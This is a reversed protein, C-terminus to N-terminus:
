QLKWPTERKGPVPRPTAAAILRYCRMCRGAQRAAEAADLAQEVERFSGERGAPPVQPVPARQSKCLAFDEDGDGLLGLRGIIAHMRERPEFGAGGGTLYADIAAAAREGQAMASILTLPGTACDGGAFVGPRSTMLGPGAAVNGRRDPAVGGCAAVAAPDTKQGVAAIVTGCPLEFESGEVARVGRRGRADREALRVKALTLGCVRGGETELSVPNTLFHFIVGEDRAAAIEEPDAPAEKETRRYILHVAGGAVRRATRCCDMAVNGCGVVAVDGEIRLASGAEDAKQAAALFDIGNLYGRAAADEGPLGLYSGRACGFALFVASYGRAFLDDLTFDGGLRQGFRYRGGLSEIVGAEDAVVGKPLRYPPIGRLAMGGAREDKDYVDVPYGRLLLHYACNVGAPGAGVVAVRGKTPDPAPSAGKFLAGVGAADAVYRKVDKIMVAADLRRRRCAKECPRVCVRGCVGVLPYHRLLAGCALEDHGDRVYDLVRPINVHSPCAEVCPATMTMYVDGPASGGGSALRERFHALAGALAAPATRGLGCLSTARMQAAAEGLREWDVGAGDGAAARALSEEILVSGIRCPTCRGCSAERARRYYALLLAALSLGADFVLFGDGAVLADVPNGPNFQALEGLPLGAPAAEGGATNDYKVGKWVGYQLTRM